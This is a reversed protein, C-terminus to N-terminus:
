ESLDMCRHFFNKKNSDSSKKESGSGGGLADLRKHFEIGLPINNVFVNVHEERNTQRLVCGAEPTLHFEGRENQYLWFPAFLCETQGISRSRPNLNTQRCAKLLVRMDVTAAGCNPHTFAFERRESGKFKAAALVIPPISVYGFVLCRFFKGDTELSPSKIAKTRDSLVAHNIVDVNPYVRNPVGFFIVAAIFSYYYTQSNVKLSGGFVRECLKM